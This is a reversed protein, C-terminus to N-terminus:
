KYARSLLDSTMKICTNLLCGHNSFMDLRDLKGPDRNKVAWEANWRFCWAGTSSNVIELFLFPLKTLLSVVKQLTWGIM